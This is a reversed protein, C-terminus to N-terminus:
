LLVRKFPLFPPLTYERSSFSCTCESKKGRSSMRTTAITVEHGAFALCTRRREGWSGSWPLPGRVGCARALWAGRGNSRACASASAVRRRKTESGRGRDKRAGDSGM